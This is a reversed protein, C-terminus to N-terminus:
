KVGVLSYRCKPPIEDCFTFILSIRSSSVSYVGAIIRPNLYSAILNMMMVVVVHVMWGMVVIVIVVIVLVIVLDVAVSAVGYLGPGVWGIDFANWKLLVFTGLIAM